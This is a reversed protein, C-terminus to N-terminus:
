PTVIVFGTIRTSVSASPRVLQSMLPAGSAAAGAAGAGPLMSSMIAAGAVGAGAAASSPADSATLARSRSLMPRISMSSPVSMQRSWALPRSSRMSASSRSILTGFSSPAPVASPLKVRRPTSFSIASVIPARGSAARKSATGTSIVTLESRPLTVAIPVASEPSVRKLPVTWAFPEESRARAVPSPADRGSIGAKPAKVVSAFTAALAPWITM